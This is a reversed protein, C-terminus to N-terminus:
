RAAGGTQTCFQARLGEKDACWLGACRRAAPIAGKSLLYHTQRPTRNIIKGIAEVGWVIGLDDSENVQDAKARRQPRWDPNNAKREAWIRKARESRSEKPAALSTHKVDM